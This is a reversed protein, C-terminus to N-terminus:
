IFALLRFLYSLMPSFNVFLMITTFTVTTRNQPHSKSAFFISPSVSYPPCVLPFFFLRHLLCFQLLLLSTSHVSLPVFLWHVYSLSCSILALTHERFPWLDRPKQSKRNRSTVRQSPGKKVAGLSLASPNYQNETKEGDHGGWWRKIPSWSRERVQLKLVPIMQIQEVNDKYFSCM